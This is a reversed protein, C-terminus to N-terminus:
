TVHYIHMMCPNEVKKLVQVGEFFFQNSGCKDMKLYILVEIYIPYFPSRGRAGQFAERVGSPYAYWLNFVGANYLIYENVIFLNSVQFVYVNSILHDYARPTVNSRHRPSSIACACSPTADHRWSHHTCTSPAARSRSAPELKRLQRCSWGAWGDSNVLHFLTTVSWGVCHFLHTSEILFGM